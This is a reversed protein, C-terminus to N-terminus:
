TEEHGFIRKDEEEIARLVMHLAYQEKLDKIDNLNPNGLANKITKELARRTEPDVHEHGREVGNQSGGCWVITAMMAVLLVVALVLAILVANTIIDHKTTM